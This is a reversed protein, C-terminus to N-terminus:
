FWVQLCCPYLCSQCALPRYLHIIEQGFNDLIAMNFERINSCCYRQLCSSEEAAFFMKQGVSNKVVYKNETEYGTLVQFLNVYPNIQCIFTSINVYKWVDRSASPCPDSRNSDFIRTRTSLRPNDVATEADMGSLAPIRNLLCDIPLCRYPNGAVVAPPQYGPPVPPIPQGAPMYTPPVGYPQPQGTIVQQQNPNNYVVPGQQQQGFSSPMPQQTTPPEDKREYRLRRDNSLM